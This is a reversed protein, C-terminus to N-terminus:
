RLTAFYTSRWNKEVPFIYVVRNSVVAAAFCVSGNEQVVLAASLVLPRLLVLCVDHKRLKGGLGSLSHM